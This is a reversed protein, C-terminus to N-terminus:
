FPIEDDLARSTPDEDSTGGEIGAFVSEGTAGGIREGDAVKMVARLYTTM